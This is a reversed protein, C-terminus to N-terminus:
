EVEGLRGHQARIDRITDAPLGCIIEVVTQWCDKHAARAGGQGYGAFVAGALVDDLTLNEGCIRCPEDTYAKLALDILRETNTQNM